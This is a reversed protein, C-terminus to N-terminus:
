SHIIAYREARRSLGAQSIRTLLHMYRNSRNNAVQVEEASEHLVSTSGHPCIRVRHTNVIRSKLSVDQASFLFLPIIFLDALFRDRTNNLLNIASERSSRGEIHRWLPGHSLGSLAEGLGILALSLWAKWVEQRLRQPSLALSIQGTLFIVPTQDVKGVSRM